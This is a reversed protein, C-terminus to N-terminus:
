GFDSCGCGRRSLVGGLDAPFLQTIWGFDSVTGKGAGVGQGWPRKVGATDGGSVWLRGDWYLADLLKTINPHDCGALIEIEVAYDELEEESPTEIVKAAAM